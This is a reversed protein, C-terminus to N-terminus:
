LRVTVMEVEVEAREGAEKKGRGCRVLAGTCVAIVAFEVFELFTMISMGLWLGMNGGLTGILSSLTTTQQESTKTMIDSYFYILTESTEGMLVNETQTFKSRLAELGPVTASPLRTTKSQDVTYTTETCPMPCFAFEPFPFLQEQDRRFQAASTGRRGYAYGSSHDLPNKCANGAVINDFADRELLLKSSNTAEAYLWTQLGCDLVDKENCAYEAIARNVCETMCMDPSSNTFENPACHSGFPFQARTLMAESIM